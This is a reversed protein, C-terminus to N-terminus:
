TFPTRTDEVAPDFQAPIDSYEPLTRSEKFLAAAIRIAYVLYLASM